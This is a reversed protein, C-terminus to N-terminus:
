GRKSQVARWRCELVVITVLYIAVITATAGIFRHQPLLYWVAVLLGTRSVAHFIGVWHNILWTVPMWMLGTLIGVTVPLSTYDLQFFPIAIAFVLLAQGVCLFFLRDFTNRPKSKDMFDEGTLKSLGMGIYAISGTGIFLSWVTVTKSAFLSIIGIVLWVLTGALPMAIFRRQEFERKQQDLSRSTNDSESM